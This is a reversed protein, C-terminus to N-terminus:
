FDSLQKCNGLSFLFNELRKKKTYGPIAQEIKVWQFPSWYQMMTKKRHFPQFCHMNEYQRGLSEKEKSKKLFFLVFCFYAKTKSM